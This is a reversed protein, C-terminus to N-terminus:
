HIKETLKTACDPHIRKRNQTTLHPIKKDFTRRKKKKKESTGKFSAVKKKFVKTRIKEEEM